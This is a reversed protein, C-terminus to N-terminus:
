RHQTNVHYFTVRGGENPPGYNDQIYAGAKFYLQENSWYASLQQYLAGRDGESSEVNVGLMGSSTVRLRYSFREDLQINEALLVNQVEADGPRKRLLLELRGVGHLYHYQLKALPDNNSGPEDKSHIQGIVVKNQSPVQNVSLVASLHNDASYYYWNSLSGDAQTERLESRPYRADATHSGDVPVWFTVSGDDNHRLYQSDYGNNLRPTEITTPAPDTPVSLNWTTLDLM